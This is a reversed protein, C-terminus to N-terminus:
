FHIHIQKKLSKLSIQKISCYIYYGTDGEVDVETLVQNKFDSLEDGNLEVSDGMPLKFQSMVSPHLSNFDVYLLYNSKMSRSDFNPNTNENNEIVYRQCVSCFGGFINRNIIHYLNPDSISDLSVRCKHYMAKIAFPALTLFYLCDLNFLDMLVCRWQLYIGALFAVDLNLYLNVYDKLTRCGTKGM